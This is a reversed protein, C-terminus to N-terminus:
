VLHKTLIFQLLFQLIAFMFLFYLKRKRGLTHDVQNQSQQSYSDYAPAQAATQIPESLM